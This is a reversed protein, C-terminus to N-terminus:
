RKRVRIDGAFTLKIRVQLFYFFIFFLTLFRVRSSAVMCGQGMSFGCMITLALIALASNQPMVQILYQAFPQGYDLQGLTPDPSMVAAIDVVTYAVILQLAWGAIGGIASTMVIARPTAVAANSCEEALHFPADYGSMTWIIGVFSMLLAVGAPWDTGNEIAWVTSSPNFKPVTNVSSPIMVITIFLAVINFTSGVANFNAIWLTPMSSIFAHIIM